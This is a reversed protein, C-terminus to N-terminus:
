FKQAFLFVQKLSIQIQFYSTVLNNYSYWTKALFAHFHIGHVFLYLFVKKIADPERNKM